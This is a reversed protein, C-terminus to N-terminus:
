VSFDFLLQQPNFTKAFLFGLVKEFHTETCMYMLYATLCALCGECYTGCGAKEAETYM